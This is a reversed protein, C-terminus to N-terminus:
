RQEEKITFGNGLEKLYRRLAQELTETKGQEEAKFRQMDGFTYIGIKNMLTILEKM